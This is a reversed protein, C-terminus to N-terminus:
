DVTFFILINGRHRAVVLVKRQFSHIEDCEYIAPKKILQLVKLFQNKEATKNKKMM